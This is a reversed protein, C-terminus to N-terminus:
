CPICLPQRPGVKMGPAYIDPLFRELSPFDIEIFGMSGEVRLAGPSGTNLHTTGSASVSGLLAEGVRKSLLLCFDFQIQKRYM